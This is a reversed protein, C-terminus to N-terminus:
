LSKLVGNIFNQAVVATVNKSCKAVSISILQRLGLLCIIENLRITVELLIDHVKCQSFSTNVFTLDLIVSGWSWSGHFGDLVYALISMHM